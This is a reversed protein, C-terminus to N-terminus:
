LANRCRLCLSNELDRYNWCRICKEKSTKMVKVSCFNGEWAGNEKTEGIEVEAVLLLEELNLKSYNLKSETKPHITLKAQSNTNIIKEQRAKELAQYVGQRLPLFFDNILKAKKESDPLLSFTPFHNVLHISEQGVFGFHFPINQYVEEALFPLIPSIIKLLGSLLYYLTTIVRRRHLSRSNDCYLSDKSIEFYFASLDNICFNLLSSYTPNFNYEYYSKQSEAILKELKHLIYYDVPSLDTELDKENKIEPPLSALNGLLFRLTNRIKQHSEQLHEM